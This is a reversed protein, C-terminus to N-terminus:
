RDTGTSITEAGGGRDVPSWHPCRDAIPRTSSATGGDFSQGDYGIVLFSPLWDCGGVPGGFGFGLEGDSGPDLFAVVSGSAVGRDAHDVGSVARSVGCGSPLAAQGRAAALRRLGRVETKGV